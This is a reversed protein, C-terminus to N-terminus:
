GNKRNEHDNKRNEAHLIEQPSTKQTKKTFGHALVLKDSGEMWGLLRFINGAFIVRVEWLDDTATMKKMYVSPSPHTAKLASFTWLVKAAQKANLSDLYERVPSKGEGTLYFDVELM